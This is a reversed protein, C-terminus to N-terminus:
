GKLGSTAIGQIFARQAVFFVLTVPMMMLVSAAMVHNWGLPTEV